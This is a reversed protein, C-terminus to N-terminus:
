DKSIPELILDLPEESDFFDFSPPIMTSDFNVIEEGTASDFICDQAQMPAWGLILLLTILLPKRLVTM